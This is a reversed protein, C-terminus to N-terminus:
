KELAISRSVFFPSQGLTTNYHKSYDRDTDREQRPHQRKDNTTTKKM